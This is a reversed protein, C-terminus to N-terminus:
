LTEEAPSYRVIRYATYDGQEGNRTEKQLGLSSINADAKLEAVLEKHISVAVRNDNDWHRMWDTPNEDKDQATNLALQDIGLKEKIQALTMKCTKISM